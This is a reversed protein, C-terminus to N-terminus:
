DKEAIPTAQEQSRGLLTVQRLGFLIYVFESCTVQLVTSLAELKSYTNNGPFLM